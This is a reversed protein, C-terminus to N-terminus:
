QVGFRRYAPRNVEASYKQRHLKNLLFVSLCVLLYFVSDDEVGFFCSLM